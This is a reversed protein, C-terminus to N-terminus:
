RLIILTEESGDKSKFLIKGGKEENEVVLTMLALARRVVDSISSLHTKTQLDSLCERTERSIDLNLRIKDTKIQM